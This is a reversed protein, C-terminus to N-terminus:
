EHAVAAGGGVQFAGDAGGQLLAENWLQTFAEEGLQERLRRKKAADVAQEAPTLPSSIAERLAAAAALLQVARESQTELIALAALAELAYAASRRDGIARCITLGEALLQRALEADGQDAACLGLLNLTIAICRRDGLQRRLTLSETLCDQATTLDQEHRALLGLNNLSAAVGWADRLARRLALSERYYDRAADFQEQAMAANGLYGLAGAMGIEDGNARALALSREHYQQAAEYDGRAGAVIGLCGLSGAIGLEDGLTQWLALGQEADSRGRSLDGQYAALVSAWNLANARLPLAEEDASQSQAALARDIWDLGESWHGRIQWYRGLANVLRLMTAGNTTEAQRLAARLNPYAEDLRHLWRTQEPGMLRQEAEEARRLFYDCHRIRIAEGEGSRELQREAYRRILDLMRYRSGGEGTEATLLSQAVLRSLTPLLDPRGGEAENREQQVAGPDSSGCVEEAEILTWGGHFVALRRLLTQEVPALRDYSSALLAELTRHRDPLTPDPAPPLERGSRLRAAIEGPTMAETLAAALEIALPLGDLLRCAEAAARLEGGYAGFDHRVSRAREVFLQIAASRLLESAELEGDAAPLALGELRYVRESMPGLRLRSTALIRLQPCASLLATALQASAVILHECNDLVMLLQKPRLFGVLTELPTRGREEPVGLRRAVQAALREPMATESLDIFWVGDLFDAALAAAAEVALRTKGVGGTGVLTVLRTLRLEATLEQVERERGILSTLSQPLHMLPSSGASPSVPLHETRRAREEAEARLRAMITQLEPSPATSCEKHLRQRLAQYAQMAGGYDGRRAMAELLARHLPEHLPDVAIGRRLTDIEAAEDGAARALAALREIAKLFRGERQAREGVVWADGCEELLPGVYLAVARKLAEHDESHRQANPTPHQPFRSSESRAIDRDFARVDVEVGEVALCLTHRTVRLLEGADDGLARRLDTLLQRLGTLADAQLRDPWLTQALLTRPLEQGQRLALLALLWKGKQSRLPPLPRGALLADFAGFLRIKLRTEGDEPV